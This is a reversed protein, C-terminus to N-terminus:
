RNSEAAQFGVKVRGGQGRGEVRSQGGPLAMAIAMSYLPPLGLASWRQTKTWPTRWAVEDGWCGGHSVHVAQLEPAVGNVHTGNGFRKAIGM